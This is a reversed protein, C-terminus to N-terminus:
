VKDNGEAYYALAEATLSAIVEPTFVAAHMTDIAKQTARLAKNVAIKKSFDGGHGMGIACSRSHDALWFVQARSDLGGSYAKDTEINLVATQLKGDPNGWENRTLNLNIDQTQKHAM